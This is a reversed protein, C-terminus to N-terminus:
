VRRILFRYVREEESASLLVCTVGDCFAAFDTRTDPDTAIVELVDGARMAALQKKARLLPVPCTLGRVNLTHTPETM